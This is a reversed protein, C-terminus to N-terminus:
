KVLQGQANYTRNNRIIYLQGDRLVKQSSVAVQSSNEVATPVKPRFVMRMPAPSGGANADYACSLYARYPAVSCTNADQVQYFAVNGDHNQLVYNYTGASSVRVYADHYNGRLAGNQYLDITPIAYKGNINANAGPEGVFEYEGEDAIILVPKDAEIASVASAEIVESGENTLTYAEVGAPLTPVNFPLVLTAMGASSVSLTYGETHADARIIYIDGITFNSGSIRMGNAKLGDLMNQDVTYSMTMPAVFLSNFHTKQQPAFQTYNKQMVWFQGSTSLETLSICVKDGLTLDAFKAADFAIPSDWTTVALEDGHYLMDYISMPQAIAFHSVYVGTGYVFLKGTANIASAQDGTLAISYAKPITGDIGTLQVYEGDGWGYKFYVQYNESGDNGSLVVHLEDGAALTPLDTTHEWIGGGWNLLENGTNLVNEVLVQQSYTILDVKSITLSTGTIYMGNANMGTIDAERLVFEYEADTQSKEIPAYQGSEVFYLDSKIRMGCQGSEGSTYSVVIKDGEHAAALLAKDFILRQTWAWSGVDHSGTFLNHTEEKGIAKFFYLKSMTFSADVASSWNKIEIKKIYRGNLALLKSTEGADLVQYQESTGDADTYQVLIRVKNAAAEALDFGIHTFDEADLASANQDSYWIQGGGWAKIGSFELTSSNFSGQPVGDDQYVEFSTLSITETVVTAQMAVSLLVAGIFLFFKKKAVLARTFESFKKM